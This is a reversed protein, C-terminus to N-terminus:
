GPSGWGLTGGLHQGKGTEGAAAGSSRPPGDTKMKGGFGLSVRMIESVGSTVHTTTSTLWSSGSTCNVHYMFLSCTCVARGGSRSCCNLLVIRTTLVRGMACWSQSLPLSNLHLTWLLASGDGM